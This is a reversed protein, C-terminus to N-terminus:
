KFAVCDLYDGTTGESINVFSSKIDDMTVNPIDHTETINIGNSKSYLTKQLWNQQNCNNKKFDLYFGVDFNGNKIVYNIEYKFDSVEKIKIELEPGYTTNYNLVCLNFPMLKACENKNTLKYNKIDSGIKIYPQLVYNLIDSTNVQPSSITIVGNYNGLNDVQINGSEFISKENCNKKFTLNLFIQNNKDFPLFDKVDVHLKLEYNPNKSLIVSINFIYKTNIVDLQWNVRAFKIEKNICANYELGIDSPCSMRGFCKQGCYVLDYDPCYANNNGGSEICHDASAKSLDFTIKPAPTNPPTPSPPTPSPPSPSPPSPSTQPPNGSSITLIKYTTRPGSTIVPNNLKQESDSNNCKLELFDFYNGEEESECSYVFFYYLIFFAFLLVFFITIMIIINNKKVPTEIEQEM